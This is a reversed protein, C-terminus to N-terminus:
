YHRIYWICVYGTSIVWYLPTTVWWDLIPRTEQTKSGQKWRQFRERHVQFPRIQSPRPFRSRQLPHELPQGVGFYGRSAYVRWDRCRLTNQPNSWTPFSLVNEPGRNHLSGHIAAEGSWCLVTSQTKRNRWHDRLPGEGPHRPVHVHVDSGLRTNDSDDGNGRWVSRIHEM